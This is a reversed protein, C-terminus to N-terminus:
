CGGVFARATCEIAVGGGAFMAEAGDGGNKNKKVAHNIGEITAFFGLGGVGALIADVVLYGMDVVKLIYRIFDL